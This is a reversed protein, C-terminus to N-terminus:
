VEEVTVLHKVVFIMGRIADNDNKIVSQRIKRLGLAEITKVQKQLCGTTSRVLTIKIQKKSLEYPKEGKQPKKGLDKEVVYRNNIYLPANQLAEKKAPAKKAPTKKVEEAKVEAVEAEKKVAPKEAKVAEKKPATTKTTTSAKKTAPKKEPEATAEVVADLKDTM